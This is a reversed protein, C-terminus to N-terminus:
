LHGSSLPLLVLHFLELPPHSFFISVVFRESVLFQPLMQSQVYHSSGVFVSLSLTPRSFARPWSLFNRPSAPVLRTFMLAFASLIINFGVVILANRMVASRLAIPNPSHPPPPSSHGFWGLMGEPPGGGGRGGM